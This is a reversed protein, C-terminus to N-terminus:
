STSVISQQHVEDEIKISNEEKGPWSENHVEKEKQTRELCEIEM